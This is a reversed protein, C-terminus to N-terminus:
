LSYAEAGGEMSVTLSSPGEEQPYLEKLAATAVQYGLEGLLAREMTYAAIRCVAQSLLARQWPAGGEGRSLALLEPAPLHMHACLGYLTYPIQRESFGGGKLATRERTSDCLAFYAEVAQEWERRNAPPRKEM